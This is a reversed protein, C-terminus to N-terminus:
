KRVHKAQVAEINVTCSIVPADTALDLSRVADHILAAVPTGPKMMVINEATAFTTDSEAKAEATVRYINVPAAKPAPAPALVETIAPAEPTEVFALASSGQSKNM